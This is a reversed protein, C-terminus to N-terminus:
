EDWEEGWAEEGILSVFRCAGLNTTVIEDGRKIVQLLDQDYRSGVPIVLRGDDALQDLLTQPVRPAGATVIIAEYPADTLWGLTKEVLHVEVNEYGLKALLDRATQYLKPQREVTIVRQSLEALIATQYGSGTGVELVKEMGVLELAQTMLAVIFPQSITQGEGISLPIDEYALQQSASPVFLERKICSMVSLVRKDGIEYSLHEILRARAADFDM